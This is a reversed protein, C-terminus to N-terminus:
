KELEGAARLSELISKSWNRVREAYGEPGGTVIQPAHQTWIVPHTYNGYGATESGRVSWTRKELMPRTEARVQEPTAGNDFTLLLNIAHRLGQPSYLQPHQLHYCLISLHHVAAAGQEDAFEWVLMQHFAAECTWGEVWAAKCIECTNASHDDM